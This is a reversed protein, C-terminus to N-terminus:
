GASRQAAPKPNELAGVGHEDCAILSAPLAADVEAVIDAGGRWEAADVVVRFGDAGWLERVPGEWHRIAVCEAYAVTNCRGDPSVWSIGDPGIILRDKRAKPGVLWGSPRITRGQIPGASWGPYPSVAGDDYPGPPAFLLM